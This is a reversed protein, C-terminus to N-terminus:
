WEFVRVHDGVGIDIDVDIIIKVGDAIDSSQKSIPILVECYQSNLGESDRRSMEGFFLVCPDQM